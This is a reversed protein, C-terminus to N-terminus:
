LSSRRSGDLVADKPSRSGLRAFFRSGPPAESQINSFELTLRSQFEHFQTALDDPIPKKAVKTKIMSLLIRTEEPSLPIFWSRFTIDSVLSYWEQVYDFSGDRPAIMPLSEPNMSFALIGIM